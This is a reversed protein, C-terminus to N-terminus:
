LRVGINSNRQRGIKPTHCSEDQTAIRSPSELDMPTSIAAFLLPNCGTASKGCSSTAVSDDGSRSPWCIDIGVSSYIKLYDEVEKVIDSVQIRKINSESAKYESLGKMALQHKASLKTKIVESDLVDLNKEFIERANSVDNRSEIELEMIEWIEQLIEESKSTSSQHETPM